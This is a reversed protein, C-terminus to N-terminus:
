GGDRDERPIYTYRIDDTLIDRKMFKSGILTECIKEMLWKDADNKFIDLLESLLVGDETRAGVENMVQTMVDAHALRGVGAFTQQMNRETRELIAIARDLDKVTIVMDDGRAASCIICLKMVHNGRREFYGEFRSDRFPLNGDQGSYWDIWPDLFRKDYKFEGHLMHIKAIDYKLSEGLKKEEASLAPYPVIKGKNQEYVFIIRSTLGSGITDPSMSTRILTPTIAGFLSVYVGIIDDVGMTKTRYTWHNKCDYWDTLDSILQPNNYGTFVTLEQAWITLSSHFTMQVSGAETIIENDNANKLERILAERTIAEAALKVNLDELMPFAQNMATGKRSAPPGVLVVYMNPYFTLTGWLFKCKRQLAASIVSIACWLRFTEPPESNQTFVLYSDIWDNLLRTM